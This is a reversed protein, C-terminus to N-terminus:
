GGCAPIAPAAATEVMWVPDALREVIAGREVPTVLVRGEAM